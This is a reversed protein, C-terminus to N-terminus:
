AAALDKDGELALWADHGGRLVQVHNGLKVLLGAAKVASVDNPCNCYVVVHADSPLQRARTAIEDLGIAIAGPVMGSAERAVPARVDFIVPSMGGSILTHLQQPTIREIAPGSGSRLRRVLRLALALLLLVGLAVAAKTGMDAMAALVERVQTRLAYGLVLYVATWAAAGALDWAVFRRWSMKLAGAMPAAVVSVGPVFKAAVLSWGAWREFMGESQRVCTDPSLSVRCLMRLVRYGYRRGGVFWLADGLVNALLSLVATIPLSLQGLAGLAGAVVLVPGAPFPAGARSLLTLAFVVLPGHNILLAVIDDM